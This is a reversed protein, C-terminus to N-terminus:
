FLYYTVFYNIYRVYEKRNTQTKKYVEMLRSNQDKVKSVNPNYNSNSNSNLLKSEDDEIEVCFDSAGSSKYSNEPKITAEM